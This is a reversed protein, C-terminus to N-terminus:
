ALVTTRGGPDAFKLSAGAFRELVGRSKTIRLHLPRFTCSDKETQIRATSVEAHTNLVSDADALV